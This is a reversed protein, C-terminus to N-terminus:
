SDAGVAVAFDHLANFLALAEVDSLSTGMHMAGLTRDTFGNNAKLGTFDVNSLAASAAAANTNNSVGDKFLFINNADRRVCISHYPATANPATDTVSGAGSIQCFSNGAPQRTRVRYVNVTGTGFDSQTNVTSTMTYTGFHNADQTFQVGNTAADWGTNLSADTGNGAWGLNATFTPSGSTTLTFTGPSKLNLSAQQSDDAWLIWLVDLKTWVGATKLSTIFTQYQNKRTTSPQSSMAAFLAVADSDYNAAVVGAATNFVLGRHYDYAQAPAFALLASLAVSAFKLRRYM